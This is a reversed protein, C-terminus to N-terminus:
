SQRHSGDPRSGSELHRDHRITPRPRRRRFWTHHLRNRRSNRGRARGSAPRCRRRSEGIIASVNTSPVKNPPTTTVTASQMTLILRGYVALGRGPMHQPPTKHMVQYGNIVTGWHLKLAYPAPSVMPVQLKASSARALFVRELSKIGLDLTRVGSPGGFCTLVTLSLQGDKKTSRTHPRVRRPVAAKM